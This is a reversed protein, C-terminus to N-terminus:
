SDSEPNMFRVTLLNYRLVIAIRPGRRFSQAHPLAEDCQQGIKPDGTRV